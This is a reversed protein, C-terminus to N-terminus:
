LSSDFDGKIRSKYVRGISGIFAENLGAQLMTCLGKQVDINVETSFFIPDKVPWLYTIEETFCLKMHQDDDKTCIVRTNVRRM